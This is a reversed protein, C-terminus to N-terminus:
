CGSVPIEFFFREGDIMEGSIDSLTVSYRNIIGSTCFKWLEAGNMSLGVFGMEDRVVLRDGAEVFEHFIFPMRYSFCSIDVSLNYGVLCENIGVFVRDGFLVAQPLLGVNAYGVHIQRNNPTQFYGWSNSDSTLLMGHVAVSQSGRAEMDARSDCPVWQLTNFNVKTM